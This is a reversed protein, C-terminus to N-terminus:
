NLSHISQHPMCANDLILPLSSNKKEKSFQYSFHMTETKKSCTDVLLLTIVLSGLAAFLSILV